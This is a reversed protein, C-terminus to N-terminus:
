KNITYTDIVKGTTDVVTLKMTNGNVEAKVITTNSNVMVPFQVTDNAKRMKYEHLHACLMIDPKAENLIPVFKNLVDVQGHWDNEPPMHGVVVRFPANKYEDSAVVTRLWDAQETRYNDYDTIGYYEIDTDPKDEGTDLMVFYIPGQRFAYYIKNETPNFYSHFQTAFDGRTEHNGRVYYVPINSAFLKVATDMFGDFVQKEDNFISVMDGNFIFFDTSKLDCQGILAKLNENSGHIDNVVGFNVATRSRDSTKFTCTSYPNTATSAGYIVMNGKHSTVETAYARYRYNTNPQLGTIRVVHIRSTRKVGCDTDYYRQRPLNYFSIIKYPAIEVWGISPSDTVWVITTANDTLNQLYPGHVISFAHSTLAVVTLALLIFVKKM